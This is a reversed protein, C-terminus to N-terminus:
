WKALVMGYSKKAAILQPHQSSTETDPRIKRMYENAQETRRVVDAYVYKFLELVTIEKNKDTDAMGQLGKMLAQTLFGSGIWDPAEKSVEDPRSSLFFVIDKDTKGIDDAISGSFCADIFCVIEKAKTSSFLASLERYYIPKDHALILGEAGHGSFFFVIRDGSEARNCIATLAAIINDHTANSSTLTSVDKTQTKMIKSFSIADKGPRQLDNVSPDAYDSIGASLVYTRAEAQAAFILAALIISFSFLLRKM